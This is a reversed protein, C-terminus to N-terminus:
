KMGNDRGFRLSHNASYLARGYSENAIEYEEARQNTAESEERSQNTWESGGTSQNTAMLIPYGILRDYQTAVFMILKRFYEVPM